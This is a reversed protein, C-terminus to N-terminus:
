QQMQDKERKLKEEAAEVLWKTRNNAIADIAQILEVPWLITIPKREVDKYAPDYPRGPKEQKRVRPM